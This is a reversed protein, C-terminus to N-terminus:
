LFTRLIEAFNNIKACILLFHANKQRNWGTSLNTKKETYGTKQQKYRATLAEYAM